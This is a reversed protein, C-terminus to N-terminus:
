TTKDFIDECTEMELSPRLREIETLYSANYGEVYLTEWEFGFYPDVSKKAALLHDRPSRPHREFRRFRVSHRRVADKRYGSACVDGRGILATSSSLGDATNYGSDTSDGSNDATNPAFSRSPTGVYGARDGKGCPADAARHYMATSPKATVHSAARDNTRFGCAKNGASSDSSGPSFLTHPCKFRKEGTRSYDIYIHRPVFDTSHVYQTEMRISLNKKRLSNFACSSCNLLPEVLNIDFVWRELRLWTDKSIIALVLQAVSDTLLWKSVQVCYGIAIGIIYEALFGHETNPDLFAYPFVVITSYLLVYVPISLYTALFGQMLEVKKSSKSDHYVAAEFALTLSYIALLCNPSDDLVLPLFSFYGFQNFTSQFPSRSAMDPSMLSLRAKANGARVVLLYRLSSRLSSISPLGLATLHRSLQGTILRALLGSRKFLALGRALQGTQRKNLTHKPQVDEQREM